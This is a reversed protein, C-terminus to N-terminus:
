PCWSNRRSSGSPLRSHIPFGFHAREFPATQTSLHAPRERAIRAAGGGAVARRTAAVAHQPDVTMLADVDRDGARRLRIRAAVREIEVKTRGAAADDRPATFADVVLALTAERDVHPQGFGRRDRVQRDVM